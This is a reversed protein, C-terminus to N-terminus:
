KTVSHICWCFRPPATEIKKMVVRARTNTTHQYWGFSVGEVDEPFYMRAFYECFDYREKGTQSVYVKGLEGEAHVQRM